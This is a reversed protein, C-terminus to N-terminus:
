WLSCAKNLIPILWLSQLQLQLWTDQLMTNKRVADHLLNFVDNQVCLWWCWMTLSYNRIDWCRFSVSNVLTYGRFSDQWTQTHMEGQFWKARICYSTVRVDLMFGQCLLCLLQSAKVRTCSAPSRDLCVLSQAENICIYPPYSAPALWNAPPPNIGLYAAGSWSLVTQRAEIEVDVVTSCDQGHWQHQFSAQEM